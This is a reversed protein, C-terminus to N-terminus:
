TSGLFFGEYASKVSYQRSNSLRWIHVDEVNPELEFNYLVEWLHLFDVIVGVTCAGRVTRRKVRRLPIAELLRPALDAISQGHIWRDTWFLTHNGNGVETVVAVSFFANIQDPIQIPLSAWPRHPETKKLWAWRMRLAWGFHKLDSSM